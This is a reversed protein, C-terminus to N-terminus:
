NESTQLELKELLRMTEEAIDRHKASRGAFLNLRKGLDVRKPPNWIDINLYNCLKHLNESATKFKGTEFRSLQGRNVGTKEELNEITLGMDHRKIKIAHSLNDILESSKFKKAM